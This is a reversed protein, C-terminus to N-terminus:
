LTRKFLATAGAMMLASFALLFLMDGGVAAIGAGKLLLNRFGEVAYTFPDAVALAHLWAPFAQIPYIAGSPFFLLTNLVGFIARPVLPDDVRVMLLFMFSILATSTVTTMALLLLLTEPRYFGHIGSILAGLITITMGAVVGKIIGALNFGFILDFKSVPTVLYGEHLGRAKDDILIIGGGIMATVFIALTISGPLLYSMYDVYPYLEVPELGVQQPLRPLIKPQNVNQVVADIAGQLSSSVFRDTNDLVLGVQPDLREFYNRSYNVPIVLVGQIRSERLDRLATAEDPYSIPQFTRAAATIAQLREWVQLSQMGRDHDVVALKLNKIQGGFANGLVVLQLLPFVMAMMMLAPSRLFKRLDREVIALSRM